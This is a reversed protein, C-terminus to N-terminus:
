LLAKLSAAKDEAAKAETAVNTKLAELKAAADKYVGEIDSVSNFKVWRNGVYWVILTYAIFLVIKLGLFEIDM